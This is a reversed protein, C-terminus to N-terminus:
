KQNKTNKARRPMYEGESFGAAKYASKIQEEYGDRPTIDSRNKYEDTMIYAMASIRKGNVTVIIDTKNYGKPYLERRDLKSEDNANIKWVIAPTRRGQQPEINAFFPMTLQWDEVYTTCIEVANPCRDLMQGKDMNSGYAVYFRFSIAIKDLISQWQECYDEGWVGITKSNKIASNYEHLTNHIMRHFEPCLAHQEHLFACLGGKIFINMADIRGNESEYGHGGLGRHLSADLAQKLRETLDDRGSLLERM